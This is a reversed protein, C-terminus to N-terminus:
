SGERTFDIEQWSNAHVPVTRRREVTRDGDKWRVRVEYSYEKGPTWPPSVFRRNSGTQKTPEDDFWVEAGAPVRLLLRVRDDRPLKQPAIAPRYYASSYSPFFPYYNPTYIYGRAPYSPYYGYGGGSSSYNPLPPLM